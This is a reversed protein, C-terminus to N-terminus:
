IKGKFPDIYPHNDAQGALREGYDEEAGSYAKMLIDEPVDSLEIEGSEVQAKWPEPLNNIALEDYLEPNNSAWSM